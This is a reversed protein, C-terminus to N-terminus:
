IGFLGIALFALISCARTISFLRTARAINKNSSSRVLLFIAALLPLDAILIISFVYGTSAYQALWPIITGLVTMMTFLYFILLSKKVGLVTAVTHLGCSADAHRDRITYLIEQACTFLFVLLFISNILPSGGGALKSGFLIISANLYAVSLNGFIVTNKLFFSYGASVLLNLITIGLFFLGMMGAFLLALIALIAALVRAEHLSIRGSPIANNPKDIKDINVDQVDNIVFSFAVALIIVIVALIMKPEKLNVQRNRLYVALMCYAAAQIATHFRTIQLFSYGFSVVPRTSL